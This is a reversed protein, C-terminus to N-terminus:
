YKLLIPNKQDPGHYIGGNLDKIERLLTQFNETNFHQKLLNVARCKINVLAIKCPM